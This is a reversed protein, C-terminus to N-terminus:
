SAARWTSQSLTMKQLTVMSNLALCVAQERRNPRFGLKSLVGASASNGLIYGSQIPDSSAEFYRDVLATAAESAYGNGWFPEGLWYGLEEGISCCGILHGVHTVAFVMDDAAHRAFFSRADQPSYPYPVRTLWRSVALNGILEAVRAADADQFSRLILRDTHICNSM